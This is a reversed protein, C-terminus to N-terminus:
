TLQQQTHSSFLIQLHLVSLRVRIIRHLSTLMIYNIVVHTKSWTIACSNMTRCALCVREIRDRVHKENCAIQWGAKDAKLVMHKTWPKCNAATEQGRQAGSPSSLSHPLYLFPPHSLSIYIYKIKTLSFCVSRVQQHQAQTSSIASVTITFLSDHHFIGLTHLKDAPNIKLQLHLLLKHIM